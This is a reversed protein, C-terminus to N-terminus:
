RQGVIVKKMQLATSESVRLDIVVAAVAAGRDSHHHHILADRVFDTRMSSSVRRGVIRGSFVDIVCAACLRASPAAAACGLIAVFRPM